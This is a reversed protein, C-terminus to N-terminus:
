TWCFLAQTLFVPIREASHSKADDYRCLQNSEPPRHGLAPYSSAPAAM